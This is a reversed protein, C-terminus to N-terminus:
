KVPNLRWLYSAQGENFTVEIALLQTGSDQLPELTMITFRGDRKVETPLERTTAPDFPASPVTTWAGVRAAVTKVTAADIIVVFRADSPIETTALHPLQQPLVMDLCAGQYCFSGYTAPMAVTNVITWAPPPQTPIARMPEPQPLSTGQYQNPTGNSSPTPNSAECATLMLIFAIVTLISQRKM